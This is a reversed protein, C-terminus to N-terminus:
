VSFGQRSFGFFFFFTLPQLFPETAVRGFAGPETGLVWMCPLGSSDLEMSRIGECEHMCVFCLHVYFLFLNYSFSVLFALCPLTCRYDWCRPPQPLCLLELGQRLALFLPQPSARPM